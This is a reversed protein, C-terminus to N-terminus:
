DKKSLANMIIICVFPLAYLFLAVINLLQQSLADGVVYHLCPIIGSAPILAMIAPVFLSVTNGVSGAVDMASRYNGVIFGYVLSVCLVGIFLFLPWGQLLPSLAPENTVGCLLNWPASSSIYLLVGYIVAAVTAFGFARWQTATLRRLHLLTSVSKIFGSGQLLGITAMLLLAVGWPLARLSPLAARVAWRVGEASILSAASQASGTLLLTIDRFFSFVWVLLLLAVYLLLPYYHKRSNNM